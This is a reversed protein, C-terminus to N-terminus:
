GQIDAGPAAALTLPQWSGQILDVEPIMGEAAAAVHAVAQPATKDKPPTMLTVSVFPTLTKLQM